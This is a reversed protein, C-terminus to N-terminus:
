PGGRQRIRIVAGRNRGVQASILMAFSLAAVIDAPRANFDRVVYYYSVQSALSLSLSLSLHPRAEERCPHALLHPSTM